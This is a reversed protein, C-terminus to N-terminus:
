LRAVALATKYRWELWSSVANTLLVSVAFFYVGALVETDALLGLKVSCVLVAVIFVDLMSWKGLLALLRLVTVLRKEVATVGHLLALMLLNKAVPLLISFSLLVVALFWEGEVFLGVTGSYISVRNEFIFLKEVSILPLGIG